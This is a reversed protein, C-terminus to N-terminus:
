GMGTHPALEPLLFEQKLAQILVDFGSGDDYRGRFHWAPQIYPSRQNYNPDNVQYYPNSVYYVLEVQTITLNPPTYDPSLMPNDPENYTYIRNGQIQMDPAGEQIISSQYIHAVPLGGFTEDPIVLIEQQILDGQYGTASTTNPINNVATATWNFEENFSHRDRL